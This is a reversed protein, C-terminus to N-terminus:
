ISSLWSCSDRCHESRSVNVAHHAERHPAAIVNVISDSTLWRLM